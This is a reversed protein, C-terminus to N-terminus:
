PRFAEVLGNMREDPQLLRVRTFGAAALTEEMEALTYCNGRPTAVLMNVAFIAAGPPQTRDASLVHDRILLRGGPELSRFVKQYLAVNQEPSNQHIIASLLALDHGGPLEDKYFDGPALTVRDLLGEAGLRKRAMEIVDPQDFITARMGPSSELFAQAYTGSAGGVDLLAKANGAGCADAFAKAARRGIVHMAGIFAELQGEEEFAAPKGEATGKRVVETLASWRGWLGATHLVMPLVSDPSNPSLLAAVGQPCQYAEGTKDLLRLATLADLLITLGRVSAGTREALASVTMPGSALMGFVNLEAGTLLIRCEMFGRSMGLVTDATIAGM